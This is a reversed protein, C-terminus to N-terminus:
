RLTLGNAGPPVGATITAAATAPLLQHTVAACGCSGHSVACGGAQQLAHATQAWAHAAPNLLVPYARYTFSVLEYM